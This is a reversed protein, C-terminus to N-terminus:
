PMLYVFTPDLEERSGVDDNAANPPNGLSPVVGGWV